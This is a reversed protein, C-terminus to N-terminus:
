MSGSPSSSTSAASPATVEAQITLSTGDSFSLTLPVQEGVAVTPKMLMIHLGGPKLVVSGQAPVPIGAALEQMKMEGDVTVTEHMSASEAVSAPVTVGTLRIFTAGSNTITGFVGTLDPVTPENVHFGSAALSGSTVSGADPTTGGTSCAALGVLAAVALAALRLRRAPLKLSTSM